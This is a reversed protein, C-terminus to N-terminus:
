PNVNLITVTASEAGTAYASAPLVRLVVTENKEALGDWRPLIPLQVRDQGAPISVVSSTAAYDAGYTATGAYSVQM